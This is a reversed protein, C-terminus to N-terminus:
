LKKYHITFYLELIWLHLMNVVDVSVKRFTLRTSKIFPLLHQGVDWRCLSEAVFGGLESLLVFYQGVSSVAQIDVHIINSYISIERNASCKRPLM